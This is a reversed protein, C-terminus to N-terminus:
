SKAEPITIAFAPATWVHRLSTVTGPNLFLFCSGGSEVPGALFPDIIGVREDTKCEVVSWLGDKGRETLKVSDGPYLFQDFGICAARVPEVAIHIADRRAKSDLLKGIRPTTEDSM